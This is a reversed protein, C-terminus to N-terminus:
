AAVAKPETLIVRLREIGKLTVRVQPPDLVIEGSKPHYHSQPKMALHGIDVRTAYPEWKRTGPARFIWGLDYMQDFLRQPGTVIGARALIKASEAVDYDGQASALEDWAEARPKAAALEGVIRENHELLTGVAAHLAKIQDLDTAPAIYQGTKRIAPLVERTVWRKFMVAGAVRSQFILEYLGAESVTAASQNRGLSDIIDAIGVGDPDLRGVADRGNALGLALTVDRAVFWPEGDITLTRVEAGEFEFPVM